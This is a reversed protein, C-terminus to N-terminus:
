ELRRILDGIVSPDGVEIETDETLLVIENHKHLREHTSDFVSTGQWWGLVGNVIRSGRLCEQIAKTIAPRVPRYLRASAGWTVGSSISFSRLDLAVLCTQGTRPELQVEKQKLAEAAARGFTDYMSLPPGSGGFSFSLSRPGGAPDYKVDYGDGSEELRETPVSEIINLCHTRIRKALAVHSEGSGGSKPDLRIEFEGFEGFAPLLEGFVALGFPVGKHKIEIYAISDGVTICCDPTGCLTPPLGGRVLEALVEIEFLASVFESDIQLRKRVSKIGKVQGTAVLDRGLRIIDILGDRSKWYNSLLQPLPSHPLYHWPTPHLWTAGLQGGQADILAKTKAQADSFPVVQHVAEIAELYQAESLGGEDMVFRYASPDKYWPQPSQM